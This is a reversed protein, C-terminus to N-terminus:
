RQDDADEAAADEDLRQGLRSRTRGEVRQNLAAAAAERPGRLLVYSLALSVLATLLLWLWTRAGAAFMLAGVAVLVLLRLLSYRVFPGV